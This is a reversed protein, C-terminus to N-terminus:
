HCYNNCNSRLSLRKSQAWVVKTSSSPIYVFFAEVPCIRQTIANSRFFIKTVAEQYRRHVAIQYVPFQQQNCPSFVAENNECVPFMRSVVSSCLQMTHSGLQVATLPLLLRTQMGCFQLSCVAFQVGLEMRRRRM